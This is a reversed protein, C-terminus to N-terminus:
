FIPTEPYGYRGVVSAWAMVADPYLPGLDEQEKLRGVLNLPNFDGNSSEVSDKFTMGSSEPADQFNGLMPALGQLTTACYDFFM